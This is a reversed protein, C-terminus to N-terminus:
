PGPMSSCQARELFGAAQSAATGLGTAEPTVKHDLDGLLTVKWQMALDVCERPNPGFGVLDGLCYIEHAGQKSADALVAQLAGLNGHIDSLIAKM